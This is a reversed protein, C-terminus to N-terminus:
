AGQRTEKGEMGGEASETVQNMMKCPRVRPILALHLSPNFLLLVLTDTCSLCGQLLWFPADLQPLRPQLLIRGTLAQFQSMTLQRHRGPAM